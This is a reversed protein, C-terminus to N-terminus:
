LFASGLYPDEELLSISYLSPFFEGTSGGM